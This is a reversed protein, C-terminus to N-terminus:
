CHKSWLTQYYATLLLNDSWTEWHSEGTVLLIDFTFPSSLLVSDVTSKGKGPNIVDWMHNWECSVFFSLLRNFYRGELDSTSSAPSTELYSDWGSRCRSDGRERERERERRETNLGNIANRGTQRVLQVDAEWVVTTCVWVWVVSTPVSQVSSVSLGLGTDQLVCTTGSQSVSQSINSEQNDSKFILRAPQWRTM